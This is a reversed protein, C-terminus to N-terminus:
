FKKGEMWSPRRWGAQLRKWTIDKLYGFPGNKSREVNSPLGLYKENLSENAVELVVKINEKINASCKKGFYLSSTDHNLCQNSANCYLLLVENIKTAEGSTPKGFIICDDVFLLHNVKSVKEAVKIRALDEKEMANKLLCSIGEAALLLLYTSIPDGQHIGHSPKFERTWSGNFLVL